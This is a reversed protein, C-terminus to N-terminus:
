APPAASYNRTLCVGAPQQAAAGAPAEESASTSAGLLASVGLQQPPEDLRPPVRWQVAHLCERRLACQIQETGTVRGDGAVMCSVHLLAASMAASLVWPAGRRRSDQARCRRPRGARVREPPGPPARTCHAALSTVQSSCHASPHRSETSLASQPAHFHYSHTGGADLPTWARPIVRSKWLLGM